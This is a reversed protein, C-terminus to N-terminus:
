KNAEKMYIARLYDAYDIEQLLDQAMNRILFNVHECGAAHKITCMDTRREFYRARDKHKYIALRIGLLRAISGVIIRAVSNGIGVIELKEANNM